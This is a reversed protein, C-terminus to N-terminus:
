GNFREAERSKYETKMVKIERTMLGAVAALPEETLEVGMATKVQGLATVARFSYVWPDSGSALQAALIDLPNRVALSVPHKRIKQVLGQAFVVVRDATAPNKVKEAMDRVQPLDGDIVNPFLQDLEEMMRPVQYEAYSAFYKETFEAGNLHNTGPLVVALDRLSRARLHTSTWSSDNLTIAMSTFISGACAPHDTIEASPDLAANVSAMVCMMSGSTLGAPMGQAVCADLRELADDTWWGDVTNNMKMMQKRKAAM